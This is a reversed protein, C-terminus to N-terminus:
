VRRYIWETELNKFRFVKVLEYNEVVRVRDPNQIRNTLDLVVFESDNIDDPYRKGTHLEEVDKYVDNFFYVSDLEKLYASLETDHQGWLVGPGSIGVGYEYGYLLYNPHFDYLVSTTHILVLLLVLSVIRKYGVNLIGYAAVVYIFPLVPTIYRDYKVSQLSLLVLPIVILFLLIKDV